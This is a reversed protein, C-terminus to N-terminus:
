QTQLLDTRVYGTEDGWTVKTWGEEYSMIVTVTDGVVATGLVKASESMSKRVRVPDTITIKEGEPIYSLQQSTDESGDETVDEGTSDEASSDETETDTDVSTDEASDADTEATNDGSPIEGTENWSSVANPITTNMLNQLAEDEQLAQQYAANVENFLQVVDSQSNYSNIYALITQDTESEQASLNYSSYSNDIYYNGNEGTKVYFTEVGPAPTEVGTFHIKMSVSVIYEGANVGDKSYVIFDSYSDIYQSMLSIYQLERESFPYALQQLMGTDGVAYATYYDSLLSNIGEIANVQFTSEVAADASVSTDASIEEITSDASESNSSFLSCGSLGLSMVMSLALVVSIVRKKM